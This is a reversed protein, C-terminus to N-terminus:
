LERYKGLAKEIESLVSQCGDVINKL